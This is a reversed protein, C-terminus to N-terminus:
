LEELSFHRIIVKQQAGTNNSSADFFFGVKNGANTLWATRSQSYAEVWHLGDYSFSFRHDTNDDYFQLWWVPGLQTPNINFPTASFTTPDTFHSVQTVRGDGEDLIIQWSLNRDGSTSDAVVIGAQPYVAGGSHRWCGYFGLTVKYPTSPANLYWIHKRNTPNDDEITAVMSGGVGNVLTGRSGLNVGTFDSQDIEGGSQDHGRLYKQYTPNDVWMPDRDVRLAELSDVTVVAQVISGEAHEVALTNEEARTVSLVNGNRATVGMIESNVVVRFDGETPLGSADAIQLTSSGITCTATLTTEFDNVLRERRM